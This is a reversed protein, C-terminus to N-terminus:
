PKDWIEATEKVELNQTNQRCFENHTHNEHNWLQIGVYHILIKTGTNTNETM